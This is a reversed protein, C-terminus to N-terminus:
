DHALLFKLMLVGRYIGASAKKPTLGREKAREILYPRSATSGFTEQYYLSLAQYMLATEWANPAIADWVVAGERKDVNTPVKELKKKMLYEYTNENYM